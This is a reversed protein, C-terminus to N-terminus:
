AELVAVAAALSEDTTDHVDAAAELRDAKEADSLGKWEAAYVAIQAAWESARVSDPVQEQNRLMRATHTLLKLPHAM